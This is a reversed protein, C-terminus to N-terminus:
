FDINARFIAYWFASNKLQLWKGPGECLDCLGEKASKQYRVWKPTYMDGPFKLRQERPQEDINQTLTYPSTALQKSALRRSNTGKRKKGSSNPMVSSESLPSAFFSPMGGDISSQASAHSSAMSSNMGNNTPLPLRTNISLPGVVNQQQYQHNTGYRHSLNPLSQHSVQNGNLSPFSSSSNHQSHYFNDYTPPSHSPHLYNSSHSLNNNTGNNKFLLSVMADQDMPCGVPIHMPHYSNAMSGFSRIPLQFQGNSQNSSLHHTGPASSAFYPTIPAREDEPSPFVNLNMFYNNSSYKLFSGEHINKQWQYDSIHSNNKSPYPQHHDSAHQHVNFFSPNVTKVDAIKVQNASNLSSVQSIFARKHDSLYQQYRNSESSSKYSYTNPPSLSDDGRLESM